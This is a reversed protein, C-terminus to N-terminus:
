GLSSTNIRNVFLDLDGELAKIQSQLKAVKDNYASVQEYPVDNRQEMEKAATQYAELKKNLGEISATINKQNNKVQALEQEAQGKSIEGAALKNELENIRKMDADIVRNATAAYQQLSDNDQEVDAIMSNLRAEETAYQEKRKAVYYGAGGGLAAGAAAYKVADDRNGTLIAAAGGLVAGVAAGQVVSVTFDESQARLRKEDATLNQDNSFGSVAPMCGGLAMTAVILAATSKKFQTVMVTSGRM